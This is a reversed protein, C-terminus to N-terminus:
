WAELQFSGNLKRQIAKLEEIFDGLEEASLIMVDDIEVTAQKHDVAYRHNASVLETRHNEVVLRAPILPEDLDPLPMPRVGNQTIEWERTQMPERKREPKKRLEKPQKGIFRVVSNYSCELSDAIEQNSMGQERLKQMEAVTVDDMIKRRYM